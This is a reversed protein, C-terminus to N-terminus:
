NVKIYQVTMMRNCAYKCCFDIFTQDLTGQIQTLFAYVAAGASVDKRVM